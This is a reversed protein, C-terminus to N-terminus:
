VHKSELSFCGHGVGREREMTRPVPGLLAALEGQQQVLQLILSEPCSNLFSSIGPVMCLLYASFGQSIVSM